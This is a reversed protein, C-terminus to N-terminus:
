QKLQQNNKTNREQAIEQLSYEIGENFGIVFDVFSEKVKDSSFDEKHDVKSEKKKSRFLLYLFISAVTIM